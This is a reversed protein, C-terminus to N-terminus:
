EWYLRNLYIYFYVIFIYFSWVNHSVVVVDDRCRELELIIPKLREIIDLYSEGGAGPYRFILKKQNREKFVDPYLKEIESYSM